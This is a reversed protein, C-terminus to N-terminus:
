FNLGRSIALSILVDAVSAAPPGYDGSIIALQLQSLRSSDTSTTALHIRAVDAIAIEDQVNGAKQGPQVAPLTEHALASPGVPAISSLSTIQV